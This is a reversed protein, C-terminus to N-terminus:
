VVGLRADATVTIGHVRAKDSHSGAWMGAKVNVDELWDRCEEGDGEEPSPEPATPSRMDPLKGASCERPGPPLREVLGGGRDAWM